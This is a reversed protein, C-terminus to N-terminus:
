VKQDKKIYILCKNISDSQFVIEKLLPEIYIDNIYNSEDKRYNYKSIDSTKHHKTYRNITKVVKNDDSSGVGSIYERFGLIEVITLYARSKIVIYKKFPIKKYEKYFSEFLKYTKLYKL